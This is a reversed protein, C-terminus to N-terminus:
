ETVKLHYQNLLDVVRNIGSLRGDLKGLKESLNGMEKRLDVFELRSPLANVDKELVNLRDSARTELNTLRSSDKDVRRDRSNVCGQRLQSCEHRTMFQQKLSWLGWVMLVQLVLVVVPLWHLILDM